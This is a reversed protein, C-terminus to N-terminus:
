TKHYRIAINVSFMAKHLIFNNGTVCTKSSVHINSNLWNVFQFPSCVCTVGNESVKLAYNVIDVTTSSRKQEKM